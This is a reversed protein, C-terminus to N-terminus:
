QLLWCESNAALYVPTLEEKLTHLTKQTVCFWCLMKVGTSLRNWISEQKGLHQKTILNLNEESSEYKYVTCRYLPVMLETDAVSVQLENKAMHPNQNPREEWCISMKRPKEKSKKTWLAKWEKTLVIDFNSSSQIQNVLNRFHFIVLRCNLTLHVIKGELFWCIHWKVLPGRYKQWNSCHRM